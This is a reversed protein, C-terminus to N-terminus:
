NKRKHVYSDIGKNKLKSATNAAEGNSSYRGAIVTYYQSYEFNVIEPNYGLRSIKNKMNQANSEDLFNGAVVLFPKNDNHTSSTNTNIVTNTTKTKSVQKNQPVPKSVSKVPEPDPKDTYNTLDGSIEDQVNASSETEPKTDTDNEEILNDSFIDEGLNLTDQVIVTDVAPQEETINAKEKCATKGTIIWIAVIFTIISIILIKLIREM